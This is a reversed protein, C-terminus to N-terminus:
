LWREVLRDFWAWQNATMSDWTDNELRLWQQDVFARSKTDLDDGIEVLAELSELDTITPRM